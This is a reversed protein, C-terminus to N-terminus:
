ALLSEVGRVSADGKADAEQTVELSEGLYLAQECVIRAELSDM